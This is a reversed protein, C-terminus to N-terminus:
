RPKCEDSVITIILSHILHEHEERRAFFKIPCADEGLEWSVVVDSLRINLLYVWEENLVQVNLDTVDVEIQFIPPFIISILLIFSIVLLNVESSFSFTIIVCLNMHEQFIYRSDICNIISELLIWYETDLWKNITKKIKIITM